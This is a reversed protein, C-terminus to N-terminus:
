NKKKPKVISLTGLEVSVKQRKPILRNAIKNIAQGAISAWSSAISSRSETSSVSSRRRKKRPSIGDNYRVNTDLCQCRRRIDERNNNFNSDLIDGKAHLLFRSVNCHGGTGLYQNAALRQNTSQRNTSM